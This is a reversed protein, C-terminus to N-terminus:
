SAFGVLPAALARAVLRPLRQAELTPNIELARDLLERALRWDGTAAAASAADAQFTANTPSLRTAEQAFAVAEHPRGNALLALGLVDAAQATPAAQYARRALQLARAPDGHLAHFRAMSLDTDIGAALYLQDIGEVVAYQGAAAEHDGSAELLEGLAVVFEVTPRTAVVGAYAEIADARDGSAALMDAQAALAPVYGPVSRLAHALREGAEDLDGHGLSFRAAETFAWATDGPSAGQSMALANHWDLSAEEARGVASRFLALRATTELGPALRRAELYAEEVDDYRGLALLADGRLAHAAANSPELALASDALALAGAFDHVATHVFGLAILLEADGPNAAVAAEFNQRAATYDSVDGDLRARAAQAVGLGGLAVFDAPDMEVRAQWFAVTAEVEQRPDGSGPGADGSACALSLMAMM